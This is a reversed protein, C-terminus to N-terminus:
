ARLTAGCQEGLAEVVAAVQPDVQEHRLTQAPDRFVMRLSVSKYGKEIPKGRYTTLFRVSELLPPDVARITRELQAWRVPEAVIVSLDREIAPFRPLDIGGHRPPYLATIPAYDAELLAVPTQLAFSKQLDPRLLGFRGVERDGLKIAAAAAFRQDEEVPEVALSTAGAQGAVRQVMEEFAGRMERLAASTDEADALLALATAERARGQERGFIDAVEYLKVATNGRDQNLKRCELLSPLLSPRLCPDSSRRDPDVRMLTRSTPCFAEAHDPPLFTPTITEHYGHAILVSSITQGAAVADQKRHTVLAIKEHMPVQDFGHHRAVEEILDVERQLDLRFTPVTVHIAPGEIRPQLGLRALYGAQQEASLEVGLLKHCRAVRLSLERPQPEDVGVRIVGQALTGGALEVIMAAARKSAREVAWPDVGREFRYSSDSALKLARSTRRVSLPDFAASELLLDTTQDGVESEAGGMVGAVAQPKSADAIVLMDERLEHKSGDIAVFTEDPTARRVVIRRGDLKDIDFAHLPQGTELLVFNTIDVVNNVPRLGVAELRRALWGPSPGIKVGRIVRATYVPCLDPADNAVATLSEVPEGDGRTPLDDPPPQLQRGTAAALERALGLHCLCDGRNSTVEIDLQTDTSGDAHTITEIGDDPFGVSALADAAEAADAPRDLYANLWDLSTKM